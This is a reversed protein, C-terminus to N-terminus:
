FLLGQQAAVKPPYFVGIITFPNPATNHHELTTGMFFHLDKQNLFEEEYKKRVQQNAFAEDGRSKWMSHWFLAGIEWDLISLTRSKGDRTLFEYKYRYPLKRLPYKQAPQQGSQAVGDETFVFLRDENRQMLARTDWERQAEKEIKLGLIETPKLTGLSLVKRRDIMEQMSDFTNDLVYRKREAWDHTTGVERLVRLDSSLAYSEPRYDSTQRRLDAQIWTYKDFRQYEPLNRFPVPYIRVWEGEATVGATCVLEDYKGSLNPYTKVTILVEAREIYPLLM